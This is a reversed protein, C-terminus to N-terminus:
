GSKKTEKVRYKECADGPWHKVIIEDSMKKFGLDEALKVSTTNTVDVWYIPVIDNELCWKVAKYVVLRGYGKKRQMPETVVGINGGKCEVPDVWARSAIKGDILVAFYRGEEVIARCKEISQIIRKEGKTSNGGQQGDKFLVVDDVTLEKVIDIGPEPEVLGNNGITMRQFRYVHYTHFRRFLLDDIVRCWEIDTLPRNIYALVESAMFDKLDFSVSFVRQHEAVKASILPVRWSDIKNRLPSHCIIVPDRDAPDFGLFQAYHEEFSLVKNRKM